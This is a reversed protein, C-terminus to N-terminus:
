NAPTVPALDNKGTATHYAGAFPLRDFSEAIGTRSHNGPPM